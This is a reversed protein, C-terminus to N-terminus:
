EDKKKEKQYIVLDVEREEVDDTMQLPPLQGGRDTLIISNNQLITLVPITKRMHEPFAPAVPMKKKKDYFVKYKRIIEVKQKM